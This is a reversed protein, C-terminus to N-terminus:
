KMRDRELPDVTFLIIVALTLCCVIACAMSYKRVLKQTRVNLHDERRNIAELKRYLEKDAEIDLSDSEESSLDDDEESSVALIRFSGDFDFVPQSYNSEPSDDPVAGLDSCDSSDHSKMSDDEDTYELSSSGDSFVQSNKCNDSSPDSQYEDESKDSEIDKSQFRRETVGQGLFDQEHV